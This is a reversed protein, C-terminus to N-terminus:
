FSPTLFPTVQVRDIEAQIKKSDVSTRPKVKLDDEVIENVTSVPIFHDEHAKSLPIMDDIEKLRHENITLVKNFRGNLENLEQKLLDREDGTVLDEITPKMKNIHDIVAKNKMLDNHLKQFM